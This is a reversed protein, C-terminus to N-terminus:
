AFFWRGNRKCVRIKLDKYATLSVVAESETASIVKVGFAVRRELFSLEEIRTEGGLVWYSRLPEKQNLRDGDLNVDYCVYNSNKSREFIFVHEKPITIALVGLCASLSLLVILLFRKM